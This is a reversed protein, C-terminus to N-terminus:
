GWGSGYWGDERGVEEVWEMWDTGCAEEDWGHRGDGTMGMDLRGLGDACIV